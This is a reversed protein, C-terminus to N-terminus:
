GVAGPSSSSRLGAFFETYPSAQGALLWLMAVYSVGMAAGGVLFRLMPLDHLPLLYGIAIAAAGAVACSLAPRGLASLVEGTGLSTGHVSWVIHPLAWLSMAASYALAVGTAGYPLGLVYAGIVLGAIVFAMALSRNQYGCSQLLWAFPTIMGFVLVTPALYRFIPAAEHWKPGLLVAVLEESYLACFLTAPITASNVLSYAKLFYARNRAADDQMRSLAAFVVPGVASHLAGSGFSILAYARGYLGLVEAGWYRGLLFKDMNFAVHVVLTNLTVTGGFKVLEFTGPHWAPMGPLWGVYLWACVTTVIPPLIAMAVLAWYGAGAMAMLVAAAVGAALAAMEIVSLPGYQLERHMMAVHQVGACNFLFGIGMAATIWLLRPESYLTVLLPATAVCLVALLAGLLVNIYFLTTIQEKSIHARQITAMSLGASTFLEYIGTIALVMAVLGFDRPELLRALVVTSGLRLGISAIQGALRFAGGRYAKKELEGM